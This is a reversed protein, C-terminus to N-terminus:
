KENTTDDEDIRDNKTIGSNIIKLRELNNKFQIKENAPSNIETSGRNEHTKGFKFSKVSTIYKELVEKFDFATGPKGADEIDMEDIKVTTLFEITKGSSAILVYQDGVKILHIRKDLGLPVTEVINIYQGKMAQKAKNGIYKTTIVLLFLISGFAIIFFLAGFFVDM